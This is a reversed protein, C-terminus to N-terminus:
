SAVRRRVWDELASAAHERDDFHINEHGITQYDEHGKGALLVTDGVEADMVSARIAQARDAIVTLSDEKESPVGAMADRIIAQPDETRPNDSTLFVKDALRCATQAMIPRKTKDRDGGCGFMVILRGTTVQRLASLANELADPTHAYDVLVAPTQEPDHHDAQTDADESRHLSVSELRGPVQPMTELTERLGPSVDTVTHAAAIAQLTNCVNHRGVLPLTVEIDGWPGRFRAISADAKLKLIQARCVEGDADITQDTLSTWLVPGTFGGLVKKAHPDDANVVARGDDTLQKFLVSKADAYADMTQHYDLHDQTLNTFVATHFRLAGARGQDLAHSSVEAVVAQCGVDAMRSLHYSFEIAGPTTLSTPRRGGPTGDDICVTGIVGTQVGASRLLHQILLATTTKGNTGTVGILMLRKSPEGFFREALMGTMAQDMRQAVYWCVSDPIKIPHIPGTLVASAGNAVADQIFAGGDRDIGPRAIFTWGPRVRRSDDTLGLVPTDM